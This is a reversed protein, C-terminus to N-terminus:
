KRKGQAKAKGKGKAKGARASEHGRAKGTAKQGTQTAKQGTPPEATLPGAAGAPRYDPVGVAPAPPRALATATPEAEASTPPDPEATAPDPSVDAAPPDPPFTPLATRPTVGPTLAAAGGVVAVAVAAAALVRRFWGPASAGGNPASGPEANM